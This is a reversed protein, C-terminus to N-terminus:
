YQSVLILINILVNEISFIKSIFFSFFIDLICLIYTNINKM